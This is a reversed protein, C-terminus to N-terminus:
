RRGTRAFSGLLMSIITSSVVILILISMWQTNVTTTADRGNWFSTTSASDADYYYTVNYNQNTWQGEIKIAGASTWNRTYNAVPILMGTSNYISVISTVDDNATTGSPNPTSSFAVVENFKYTNTKAAVGMKDLILVSMATLIITLIVILVIPLLNKAEM